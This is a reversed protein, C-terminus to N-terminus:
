FHFRAGLSIQDSTGDGAQDFGRLYQANLSFQDNVAFEVGAGALLDGQGGALDWGYGAAAYLLVDDNLVLGTRGLVEGYATDVTDGTLGQLSVEAGVLVFDIQANVGAALGLGAQAGNDDTQQVTGYVGAYFGNWDTRGETLPVSTLPVSKGASDLPVTIADAALAVSPLASLALAAVLIRLM